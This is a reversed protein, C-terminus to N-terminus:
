RQPASKMDMMHLRLRACLAAASPLAIKCLLPSNSTACRTLRIHDFVYTGATPQQQRMFLLRWRRSAAIRERLICSRRDWRRKAEFLTNWRSIIAILAKLEVGSQDALLCAITHPHPRVRNIIAEKRLYRTQRSPPGYIYLPGRATLWQAALSRQFATPRASWHHSDSLPGSLRSRGRLQRISDTTPTKKGRQATDKSAKHQELGLLRYSVSALDEYGVRALHGARPPSQTECEWLFQLNLALGRNGNDHSVCCLVDQYRYAADTCRADSMDHRFRRITKPMGGVSNHNVALCRCPIAM